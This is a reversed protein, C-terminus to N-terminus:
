LGSGSVNPTCRRRKASPQPTPSGTRKSTISPAKSMAWQSQTYQLQSTHFQMQHSTQNSSAIPLNDDAGDDTPWDNKDLAKQIEDIFWTASSLCQVNRDYQQINHFIGRLEENITGWLERDSRDPPIQVSNRDEDTPPDGYLAKFPQNLKRLLKTLPTECRPQFTRSPYKGAGLANSKDRGGRDLQGERVSHQDFMTMDEGRAQADYSDSSPVYRLTMWGLVHLFSELDDTLTHMKDPNQLLNASM